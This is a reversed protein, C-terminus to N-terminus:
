EFAFVVVLADHDSVARASPDDPIPPPYDSGIHLVSVRALAEYLSPTVLIHDLTESEGQYIYTYPREPEVFEYVHHLGSERLVDLPPSEYFSNLDGMVVVHAQPDQALIREVLTVNWAAQAKRVPETPLEGGSMSLFHNNIVYVTQDGSDLHVTTTIVLPHRSTLENPGPFATVGEVTAQGTRVLYGVDIGRSDGGEILFPQYGYGVIANQEVLKELIGINEVEQLGVITPAGMAEIASATKKLDLEYQSRSPIPPDSPHPTSSDFLNEVNFTAVSFEGAGVPELTPLPREVPSTVPLSIPEIKYAGYTFALPGEASLLTDGSKLPFALGSMDYHTESGGDDIFILLGTPDGKMIREIEWEARVLATEGYSNTPGVAIAPESIQVLMGELAEYYIDAEAKELPPDLESAVPLLNGSNLLEIDALDQIQLLTQSSQERVTGSVRVKDGLQLQTDLEGSLVFLGASTAPDDDTEAEQIWFGGLDPFVGIVIGETTAQDRVYPSSSGPGQIAWIPVGGGVFTLLRDTEVPDPWEDATATAAEAVLMGTAAEDVAVRYSVSASGGGGALEPVIWVIGSDELQGDNLVETVEVGDAPPTAEIRVNSLPADTHNYASLTYTLDEGPLISNRVDMELMLEPPYIQGFDSNYRPEVEWMGNYFESIGTVSYRNGLDLGDATVGADKDVYVLLINGLDDVLDVEYSYAFEELRTVLGEVAILRGLLSEDTVAEALTVIRPQPADGNSELVTVDDPYTAPVLEMSDRYVEIGGTVRVRDGVHVSVLGKGGPCYVQIGGTEDEMYFKTGTTGAYFGDTFMTAIGEVTVTEGILSRATGIPIAGGEVSLPLPYGYARYAGDQAEVYYGRVLDTLYTWPSQMQLAVTETAGAALETLTWEIREGTVIAGDPASTIEFKAPIPMSLHIDSLAATTLNEIEILYEVSSGPEVTSPAQVRIALREAPLPTPLDGSNQPSPDPNIIFDAANDGSSRANGLDGGPLRELSAGDEPVPAALGALFDVPGEGWVLTDVTAGNPDRLALGGKIEFLSSTYQADGINGVDAEAKVLLYHGYAPIDAREQWTYLLEEDRNDALRYWLTWGALDLTDPSDNYLEIFELNNDVGHVGPLVESILLGAPEAAEPTTPVPESTAPPAPPETSEATAPPSTPTTRTGCGALLVAVALLAILIRKM